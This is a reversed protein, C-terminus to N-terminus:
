VCMCVWVSPPCLRHWSCLWDHVPHQGSSCGCASSVYFIHVSLGEEEKAPRPQLDNTFVYVHCQLNVLMRTSGELVPMARRGRWCAQECGPHRLQGMAGMSELQELKISALLCACPWVNVESAAWLWLDGEFVACVEAQRIGNHSGSCGVQGRGAQPKQTFWVCGRAWVLNPSHESVRVGVLMWCMPQSGPDSELWWCLAGWEGRESVGTGGLLQCKPCVGNGGWHSPWSGWRSEHRASLDWEKWNSVDLSGVGWIDWIRM